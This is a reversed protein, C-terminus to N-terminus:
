IPPRVCRPSARPFRQAPTGLYLQGRTSCVFQYKNSCSDDHWAALCLWMAVAVRPNTAFLANVRGCVPLRRRLQVLGLRPRLCCTGTTTGGRMYACDERARWNDPQGTDWAAYQAVWQRSHAFQAIPIPFQKTGGNGNKDVPGQMGVRLHDGKGGEKVLGMVYYLKGATWYLQKTGKVDKCCGTLEVVKQLGNKTNPQSAAWVESADDSNTWFIYNGTKTPKVFGEIKAGLDNGTNSSVEFNGSALVETKDPKFEKYKTQKTLDSVAVGKINYWWYRCAM